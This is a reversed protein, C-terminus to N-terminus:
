EQAYTINLKGGDLSGGILEMTEGCDSCIIEGVAGFLHNTGPPYMQKERTEHRCIEVFEQWAEASQNFMEEFTM